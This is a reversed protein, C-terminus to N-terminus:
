RGVMCVPSGKISGSPEAHRPVNFYICGDKFHRFCGKPRQDYFAEGADGPRSADNGPVTAAIGVRFEEPACHGKCEAFTRCTNEDLIKSYDGTCGGDNTDKTGLKYKPRHCIPSGQLPQDPYAGYPNYWLPTDGDKKFCGKPYVEWYARDIEFPNTPPRGQEVGMATAAVMCMSERHVPLSDTCNGTGRNGIIYNEDCFDKEGVKLKQEAASAAPNRREQEVGHAHNGVELLEGKSGLQAAHLQSPHRRVEQRIQRHPSGHDDAAAGLLSLVLSGLFVAPFITRLPAM